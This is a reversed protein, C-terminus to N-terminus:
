FDSTQGVRNLLINNTNQKQVVGWVQCISLFADVAHSANDVNKKFRLPAGESAEYALLYEILKRCKDQNIHIKNFMTYALEFAQRKQPIRDVKQFRFGLTGLEDILSKGTLFSRKAVDHPAYHTGFIVRNRDRWTYLWSIIDILSKDNTEYFDIIRIEDRIRQVFIIVTADHMGLDWYTEVPFALEFPISRYRQQSCLEEVYEAFINGTDWVAYDCCFEQLFMKHSMEKELQEVVPTPLILSGDKKFGEEHSLHMIFWNPDNIHSQHLDYAHNKGAPTYIFIMWRKPDKMMPLIADIADPPMRSYEDLIIGTANGGRTSEFTSMGSLDFTSKSSYLRMYTNNSKKVLFKPFYNIYKVGDDDQGEWLNKRAQKHEPMLFYYLAGNYSETERQIMQEIVRSLAQKTKGFRRPIVLLFRNYKGSYFAKLFKLQWEYLEECYIPLDIFKSM